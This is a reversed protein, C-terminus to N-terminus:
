KKAAKKDDKWAKMTKKHEDPQLGLLNLFTSFEEDTTANKWLDLEDDRLQPFHQLLFDNIASKKRKGGMFNLWQHRCGNPNFNNSLRASVCMLMHQLEPHKNLTWFEANVFENVNQIYDQENRGQAGSLWRFIVYPQYLKKEATSLNKYFAYNGGNIAPLVQSFIDLKAKETPETDIEEIVNLNDFLGNTSVTTQVKAKPAM